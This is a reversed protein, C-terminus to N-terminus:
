ETNCRGLGEKVLANLDNIIYWESKPREGNGKRADAYAKGIDGRFTSNPKRKSERIIM